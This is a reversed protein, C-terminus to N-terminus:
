IKGRYGLVDRMIAVPTMNDIRSMQVYQEVTCNKVLFNIWAKYPKYGYKFRAIFEPKPKGIWSPHCDPHVSDM